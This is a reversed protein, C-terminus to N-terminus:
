WAWPRYLAAFLSLKTSEATAKRSDQKARLVWSQVGYRWIGFGFGYGSVFVFFGFSGRKVQECFMLVTTLVSQADRKRKRRVKKKMKM